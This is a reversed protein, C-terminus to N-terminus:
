ASLQKSALALEMVATIRKIGESVHSCSLTAGSINAIDQGVKIPESATKGVFQKRWAPLRIEGGHSERYSLVEVQKVSGDLAIGVAYTILEFKGVVNDIVVWGLAKGGQSAQLVKWQASRAPVGSRQAVAQLQAADFQVNRVDFRDAQPFLAQQAQVPTLYALALPWATLALSHVRM